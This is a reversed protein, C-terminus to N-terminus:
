QYLGVSIIIKEMTIYFFNSQTNAIDGEVDVVVNFSMHNGPPIDSAIFSKELAAPGRAMEEGKFRLAGDEAFLGALQAFQKSDALLCYRAVTNRITNEDSM